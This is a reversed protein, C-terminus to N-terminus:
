AHRHRRRESRSEIGTLARALQIVAQRLPSSPQMEALTRGKMIATDLSSIDYPILADADRGAFRRLATSAEFGPDRGAAGRRVKNLVVRSPVTVEADVLDALARVLRQMGIPDASGVVIITDAADLVALTAGNRRPALSDFSIEEDTEIAFACDIITYDALARGAAVVAPV